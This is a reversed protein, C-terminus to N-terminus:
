RHDKHRKKRFIVITVQHGSVLSHKIMHWLHRPHAMRVMTIRQLGFGLSLRFDPATGHMGMNLPILGALTGDAAHIQNRYRLMFGLIYRAHVAHIFSSLNTETRRLFRQHSNLREGYLASKWNSSKAQHALDGIVLGIQRRDRGPYGPTNVPQKHIVRSQFHLLTVM